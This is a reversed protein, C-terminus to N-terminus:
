SDYDDPFQLFGMVTAVAEDTDDQPQGGPPVTATAMAAMAMAPEEEDSYVDLNRAAEEEDSYVYIVMNRAAEEADSYVYVAM